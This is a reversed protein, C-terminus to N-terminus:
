NSQQFFYDLLDLPTVIGVLEHNLLIPLAHFKNEKFLRYAEQISDDSQLKVVAETMVEGAEITEFLAQTYAEKNPNKFFTAGIKVRELDTMSIIGKLSGTKDVVPLHHFSNETFIKAVKALSARNKVTVLDTTMVASIPLDQM